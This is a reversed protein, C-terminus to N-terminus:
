ECGGNAGTPGGLGVQGLDLVLEEGPTAPALRYSATCFGRATGPDESGDDPVGRSVLDAACDDLQDPTQCSVDFAVVDILHFGASLPAGLWWETLSNSPVDSQLFLVWHNADIGYSPNGSEPLTSVQAVPIGYPVAAATARAWIVEGPLLSRLAAGPAPQYLHLTFVAPFGAQVPALTALELDDTSPPDGRQWLMAAELPPLAGNSVVQGQLTVLPEGLYDSTAQPQCSAFLACSIAGCGRLFPRWARGLNRACRERARRHARQLDV